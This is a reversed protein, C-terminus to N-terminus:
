TKAEADTLQGGIATLVGDIRALRLCLAERDKNLATIKKKDDKNNPNLATIQSEVQQLLERTEAKAEDGGIRKLRLKLELESQQQKLADRAQKIRKERSKLWNLRNNTL